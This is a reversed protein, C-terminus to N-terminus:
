GLQQQRERQRDRTKSQKEIAKEPPNGPPISPRVRGPEPSPDTYAAGGPPEGSEDRPRAALPRTRPPQVPALAEAVDDLSRYERDPLTSLTQAAVEDETRAYEVLERKSAPLSVGELLAQLEAVQQFNV